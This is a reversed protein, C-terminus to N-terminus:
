KIFNSELFNRRSIETKSFSPMNKFSFANKRLSMLFNGGKPTKKRTAITLFRAHFLAQESIIILYKRFKINDVHSM